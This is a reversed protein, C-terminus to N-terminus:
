VNYVDRLHDQFEQFYAAPKATSHWITAANAVFDCRLMALEQALAFNEVDFAVCPVQFLPVWWAVMDHRGQGSFGIYDAGAEGALMAKHRSNGVDIGLIQGDKLLQRTTKVHAAIDSAAGAHLHLGDLGTKMIAAIERDSISTSNTSELLIPIGRRHGLEIMAKTDDLTESATIDHRFLVCSVETAQLVAAFLSAIGQPLAEPLTLYLETTTKLASAAVM